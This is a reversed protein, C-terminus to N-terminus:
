SNGFIGINVPKKVQEKWRTCIGKVQERTTVLYSPHENQTHIQKGM